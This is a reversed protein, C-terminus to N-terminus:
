GAPGRGVLLRLLDVREDALGDGAPPVLVEGVADPDLVAAAHLRFVRFTQEGLGVYVTPEDAAGGQLGVAEQADHVSGLLRGGRNAARGAPRKLSVTGM